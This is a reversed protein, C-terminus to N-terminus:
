STAQHAKGESYKILFRKHTSIKDRVTHLDKKTIKDSIGRFHVTSCLAKIHVSLSLTATTSEGLELEFFAKATVHASHATSRIFIANPLLQARDKKGRM